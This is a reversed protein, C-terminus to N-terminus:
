AVRVGADCRMLQGHTWKMYGLGVWGVLLDVWGSGM